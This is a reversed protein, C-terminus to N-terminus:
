FKVSLQLIPVILALCFWGHAIDAVLAIRSSLKANEDRTRNISVPFSINVVFSSRLHNECHKVTGYALFDSLNILQPLPAQVSNSSGFVAEHRMSQVSSLASDTGLAGGCSSRLWM